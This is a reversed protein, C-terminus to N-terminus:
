VLGVMRLIAELVANVGMGISTVGSSVLFSV